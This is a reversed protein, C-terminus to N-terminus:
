DDKVLWFHTVFSIIVTFFFNYSYDDGCLALIIKETVEHGSHLDFIHNYIHDSRCSVFICGDSDSVPKM